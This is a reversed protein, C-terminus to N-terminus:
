GRDLAATFQALADRIRGREEATIAAQTSDATAALLMHIIAYAPEPLWWAGMTDRVYVRVFPIGSDAQGTLPPHAASWEPPLEGGAALYADLEAWARTVAEAADRERPGWSPAQEWETVQTRLEAAKGESYTPDPM